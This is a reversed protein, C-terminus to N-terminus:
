IVWDHPASQEVLQAITVQELAARKAAHICDIIPALIQAAPGAIDRRPPPPGEIAQFVQVLTITDAPRALRYGGAAGRTSEVLGAAKLQLLIQVLYNEPIQYDRAIAGVRVPAESLHHRSLGIIALCAYEVRASFRVSV